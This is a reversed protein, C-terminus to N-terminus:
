ATLLGILRGLNPAREMGTVLEVVPDAMYLNPHSRLLHRCPRASEYPTAGPFHEAALEGLGAVGMRLVQEARERFRREVEPGAQGTRVAEHIMPNLTGGGGFVTLRDAQGGVVPLLLEADYRAPDDATFPPPEFVLRTANERPMDLLAARAAGAPDGAEVHTHLDVFPVGAAPEEARGGRKADLTPRADGPSAAVALAAVGLWLLKAPSREV